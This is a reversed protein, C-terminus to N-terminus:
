TGSTFCTLSLTSSLGQLVLLISRTLMLHLCLILQRVLRVLWFFFFICCADTSLLIALPSIRAAGHPFLFLIYDSCFNSFDELCVDLGFILVITPWLRHQRTYSIWGWFDMTNLVKLWLHLFPKLQLELEVWSYKRVRWKWFIHESQPISLRIWRRFAEM